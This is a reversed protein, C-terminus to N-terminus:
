PCHDVNIMRVSQAAPHLAAHDTFMALQVKELLGALQFPRRLHAIVSPRSAVNLTSASQSTVIVPVHALQADDQMIALVGDAGGWLVDTDVVLVDPVRVHLAAVCSLGSTATRVDYGHSTFFQKFPTLFSLRGFVLLLRTRNSM